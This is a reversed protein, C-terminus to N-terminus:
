VKETADAIGVEQELESIEKQKDRLIRAKTRDAEELMQQRVRWPMIKPETNIPEENQIMPPPSHPKTLDLLQELIVKREHMEANLLSRLMECSECRPKSECEICHPNLLHHLWKFM